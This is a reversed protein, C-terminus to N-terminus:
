STKEEGANEPDTPVPPGDEEPSPDPAAPNEGPEELTLDKAAIPYPLEKAAIMQMRRTEYRYQESQLRDPDNKAFTAFHRLYTLVIWLSAIVLGTTIIPCGAIVFTSRFLWAATLFVPILILVPVLPGM